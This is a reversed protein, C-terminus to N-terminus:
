DSTIYKDILQKFYEYMPQFHVSNPMMEPHPQFCLSKTHPYFVVEVDDKSLETQWVRGNWFTRVGEENATALIIANSSSPKMMQHHTSTVLFVEGTDHCILNHPRTHRTCDQYM